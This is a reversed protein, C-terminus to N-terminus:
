TWSLSCWGLMSRWASQPATTWAPNRLGQILQATSSLQTLSKGGTLQDFDVDSVLFCQDAKLWDPANRPTILVPEGNLWLSRRTNLNKPQRMGFLSIRRSSRGRPPKYYANDATLQSGYDYLNPPMRFSPEEIRNEDAYTCKGGLAVNTRGDYRSALSQPKSGSPDQPRRSLEHRYRPMLIERNAASLLSVVAVAIIIPLLVRFRSVGASMLATMENHRQIWSVTFMASILALIGGTRDFFLITQYTYYRAIFSLVGGSKRGCTVFEELNTFLDFIIFLGVLSLFCIVFTQVFQRLLYRDIIRM